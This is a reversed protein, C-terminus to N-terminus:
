LKQTLNYNIGVKRDSGVSTAYYTIRLYLGATIKANLPRTDIYNPCSPDVWMKIVYKAVSPWDECMASRYAEPIVSDKDYVEAIVYDGMEANEIILKGGSVYREETILFDIAESSNSAVTVLDSTADLKTRYDPKAFPHPEPQDEITVTKTQLDLLWNQGNAYDLDAAGDNVIILAPDNIDTNIDSLLTTTLFSALESEDQIQHYEGALIDQGAYTRTSATNNKIKIIRM